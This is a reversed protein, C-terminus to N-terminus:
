KIKIVRGPKRSFKALNISHQTGKSKGDWFAIFRDCYNIIKENRLFGAIKGFRGWEPRFITIKINYEDALMEALSDSGRAGGSVFELQDKILIKDKIYKEVQKKM